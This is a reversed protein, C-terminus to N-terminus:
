CLVSGNEGPNTTGCYAVVVASVVHVFNGIAINFFFTFYNTTELVNRNDIALPVPQGPECRPQLFCLFACVEQSYYIIINMLLPPGIYLAFSTAAGSAQTYILIYAVEALVSSILFVTIYFIFIGWLLYAIQYGTWRMSSAMLSPSSFEIHPVFSKDGRCLQLIHRRYNKFILFLSGILLLILLVLTAWSCVIVVTGGGQILDRVEATLNPQLSKALQELYETFQVTGFFAGIVIQYSISTTVSLVCLLRLPYRFGPISKYTFTKLFGEEEAGQLKAPLHNELLCRVYTVQHDLALSLTEQVVFRRTGLSKLLMQSFKIVMVSLFFASPWQLILTSYNAQILLFSDTDIITPCYLMHIMQIILWLLSYLGGCIAAVLKYSSRLCGFLPYFVISTELIALIFLFTQNIWKATQLEDGWYQDAKLLLLLVRSSTAGFAAAYSWRHKYGDLLNAPVVLALRCRSCGTNTERKHLITLIVIIIAAPFLSLHTFTSMNFLPTCGVTSNSDVGTTLASGDM